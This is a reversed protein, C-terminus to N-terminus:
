RLTLSFVMGCGGCSPLQATTGYLAGGAGFVVGTEPNEGGSTTFSWLTTMAWSGGSSAPPALSFVAGYFTSAGGVEVTGILDGKPTVIVGAPLAGDTGGTFTYLTTFVWDGGPTPPTLSYVTGCGSSFDYVCSPNGGAFMSGYLVGGKDIVLNSPTTGSAGGTFTYLKTFIWADGPSGPPALSFATGYGAAGGSTAGILVGDPAITLGGPGAGESGYDFAHLTTFVWQGGPSAPPQLSFVTGADGAGGHSTGYLIGGAGIAVGKEPHEGDSANTFSHLVRHVWSGGPSAPPRLEFVTGCGCPSGGQQTTGYLVGDQGVVLGSPGALPSFLNNETWAGGPSAPPTLSYAVGDVWQTGYLVGGPGTVVGSLDVTEGFTYLTTLAPGQALACGTILLLAIPLSRRAVLNEGRALFKIMAGRAAKLWEIALTDIALDAQTSSVPPIM